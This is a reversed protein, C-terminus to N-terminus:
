GAGERQLGSEGPSEASAYRWAELEERWRSAVVAAGHHEDVYSRCRASLDARNKRTNWLERSQEQLRELSGRAFAGIQHREIAGDPDLALALAPVGRAWGELFVNPMGEYDATNVIAVSREVLSMLEDRPLPTVFELNPVQRAKAELTAGLPSLRPDESGNPMAVMWFRAEPVSRALEVFDLPRKYSVVRGIWLFAEPDANTQPAPEAISKILTSARGYRERCLAVQERTQVIIKDALRIGIWFLLQNRRKPDTLRLEFDSVNASSYVFRRRGLKAFVAVVGVDPGATRTVVVRANTVSLARRVATLERLRGFREHIRYPPRVCVAAEGISTPLVTGPADFVIVCVRLGQLALASVLMYIQTEAGGVSPAGTLLPTIRPLYFAVDFRTRRSFGRV